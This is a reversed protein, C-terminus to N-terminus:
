HPSSPATAEALKKKPGRIEKFRRTMDRMVATLGGVDARSTRLRCSPLNWRSVFVDEAEADDNVVGRAGRVMLRNHRQMILRVAAGDTNRPLEVLAGDDLTDLSAAAVAGMQM